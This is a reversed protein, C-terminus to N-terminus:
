CIAMPPARRDIALGQSGIARHMALIPEFDYPDAGDLLMRSGVWFGAFDNHRYQSAPWGVLAVPAAVALLAVVFAASTYASRM